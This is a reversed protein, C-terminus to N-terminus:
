LSSVVYVLLAFLMATDDLGFCAVTIAGFAFAAALILAVTRLVFGVEVLVARWPSTM